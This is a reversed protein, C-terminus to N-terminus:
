PALAANVMARFPENEGALEDYTGQATVQGQELFFILDCRRVTTLRHAILIITKRHALNGVAEVVARETINDLASTAEDMILIDPDHYLARAIGVRQRQGGSLRVGREGIITDYGHELEETVFTHLNAIRAAREVAGRDVKSPPIGFAINSVVSDDILFIHQPVYGLRRQWARKNRATIPADDVLLQGGQPDLLGLIIDVATTKGAGTRGVIGVTSRARIILSVKDLAETSGNPYRFSVDRLELQRSLPGITGEMVESQVEDAAGIELLDGHILDLAPKAFRLSAICQYVRQVAPMLRYGALAYVAILPLAQGIGGAMFTQYQVILMVGTVTMIQLAYQPMQVILQSTIQHKVFRRSPKEFRDAFSRELGLIKVDKIGGFAEGSARFREKNARVRDKGIRDLYRRTTWFVVGYLGGLVASVTLALFPDIVILLAILFLAITGQAVLQIAPMLAGGIVQGVESLITKGLDASNRKLFWAYPQRLYGEFLRMSLTYNRRTTFRLIALNTLAKFVTTGIALAIVVFGLLFLFTHPTGFGVRQFVAAFYPNTEVLNPNALLAVFPMISAVGATELLGMMLIMGLLILARRRDRADLLDVIERTMAGISGFAADATKSDKAL